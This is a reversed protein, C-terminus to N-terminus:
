SFNKKNSDSRARYLSISPTMARKESGYNGNCNTSVQPSLSIKKLRSSGPKTGSLLLRTIPGPQQEDKHRAERLYTKSGTFISLAAGRTHFSVQKPRKAPTLLRCRVVGLIMQLVRERKFTKAYSVRQVTPYLACVFTRNFANGEM